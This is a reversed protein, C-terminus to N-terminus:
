SSWSPRGHIARDPSDATWPQTVPEGITMTQM